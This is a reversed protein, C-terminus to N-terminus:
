AGGNRNFAMGLVEVDAVCSAVHKRISAEDDRKAAAIAWDKIDGEKTRVRVLCTDPPYEKVLESLAKEMDGDTGATGTANGALASIHASRTRAMSWGTRFAENVKYGVCAEFEEITAYAFESGERALEDALTTDRPGMADFDYCNGCVWGPVSEVWVLDRSPWSVDEACFHCSYLAEPIPKTREGQGTGATGRANGAGGLHEELKKHLAVAEAHNLTMAAGDHELQMLFGEPSKAIAIKLDTDKM